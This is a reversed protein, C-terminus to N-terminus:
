PEVRLENSVQAVGPAAWAAQEAAMRERWSGIRGRLTVHSGRVEVRVGEAEVAATRELASEIKQRVVDADAAVPTLRILNVVRVVGGLRRVDAEAAARQFQFAVEGTLTVTGHEVRVKIRDEPVEIDWALLRLARDAIEDDAHKAHQPLRVEIEEAIARVGRVRGAAREAAARAAFSDVFGSLTVVGNKATVGIHAADVSPQFALEAEVNARLRQDDSM